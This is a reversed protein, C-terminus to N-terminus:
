VFIWSKTVMLCLLRRNLGCEVASGRDESSLLLSEVKKSEQDQRM